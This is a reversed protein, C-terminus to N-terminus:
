IKNYILLKKLCNYYYYYRIVCSMNQAVLIVFPMRNIYLTNRQVRAPIRQIIQDVNILVLRIWNDLQIVAKFPHLKICLNRNLQIYVVCVCSCENFKKEERSYWKKRNEENWRLRITFAHSKTTAFGHYFPLKM